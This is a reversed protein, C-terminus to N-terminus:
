EGAVLGAFRAALHDSEGPLSHVYLRQTIGPNAHGMTSSVDALSEGSNTLLSGYFHRFSHPHMKSVGAQKALKVVRRYLADPSRERGTEDAFVWGKNEYAPGMREMTADQAARHGRLVDITKADVTITRHGSATKPEPQYIVGLEQTRLLQGNITIRGTSLDIDEWRLGMLEARRTGTHAITQVMAFLEGGEAEALDLIARVDAVSPLEIRKSPRAPPQVDGMPNTPILDEVAALRFAGKLVSHIQGVASSSLPSNDELDQLNRARVKALKLHGVVPSIHNDIANKYSEITRQRKPHKRDTRALELWYDLWQAVTAKGTPRGGNELFRWASRLTPTPRSPKPIDGALGEWTRTMLPSRTPRAKRGSGRGFPARLRRTFRQWTM